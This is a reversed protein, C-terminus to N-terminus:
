GGQTLPAQMQEQQSLMEEKLIKISVSDPTTGEEM